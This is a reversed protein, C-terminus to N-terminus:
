YSKIQPASHIRVAWEQLCQPIRLFVKSSPSAPCLHTCYDWLTWKAGPGHFAKVLVPPPKLSSVKMRNQETKRGTCRKGEGGARIATKSLRTTDMAATFPWACVKCVIYHCLCCRLENITLSGSCAIPWKPPEYILFTPNRSLQLELLRDFVWDLWELIMADATPLHNAPFIPCMLIFKIYRGHSFCSLFLFIYLSM